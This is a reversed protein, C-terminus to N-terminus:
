AGRGPPRRAAVGNRLPVVGQYQAPQAQASRCLRADDHPLKRDSGTLMEGRGVAARDREREKWGGCKSLELNCLARNTYSAELTERERQRDKEPDESQQWKNDGAGLVVGVAQTYCDRAEAWRRARALENGNERLGRAADARTGEHQLARIAEVAANEEGAMAADVDNMFLPTRNLMDAIEDATYSRVSAMGPPLEPATHMTPDAAAREAAAEAAGPKIGFPTEGAALQSGVNMDADAARPPAPPPATTEDYDDPLETVRAMATPKKNQLRKDGDDGGRAHWFNPSARTVHPVRAPHVTYVTYMTYM